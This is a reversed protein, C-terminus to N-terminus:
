GIRGYGGRQVPSSTRPTITTCTKSSAHFGPRLEDVAGPLVRRRFTRCTKTNQAHRQERRSLVGRTPRSPVQSADERIPAVLVPRTYAARGCRGARFPLDTCEAVVLIASRDGM